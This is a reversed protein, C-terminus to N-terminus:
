RLQARSRGLLPWLALGCALAIAGLVILGTDVGLDDFAAGMILAGIASMGASVCYFLGLMRGRIDLPVDLQLSQSASVFVFEWAIGVILLLILDSWLAGSIGLLLTPVGCALVGIALLRQSSRADTAFRQVIPNGVVAGLCITAVLLGLVGAGEGHQAAIRPMLEELPAVFVFFVVAGMLLTRVLPIRVGALTGRLIHGDGSARALDCARQLIPSFHIVMAVAAYGVFNVAFAM